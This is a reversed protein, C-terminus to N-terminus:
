RSVGWRWAILAACVGQPVLGAPYRAAVGPGAADRGAASSGIPVTSMSEVGSAIVVDYAGAIVGQAAFHVAQQSSGCQRDITTGAVTAPLGAALAVNRGLNFAQEGVQSVCGMLVDDLRAPDVGVQAVLAASVHAGLDVPHWDVLAGM